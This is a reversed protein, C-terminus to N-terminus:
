CSCGKDYYSYVTVLVTYYHCSLSPPPRRQVKWFLVRFLKIEVFTPFFHRVKDNFKILNCWSIGTQGDVISMHSYRLWSYWRLCTQRLKVVLVSVSYGPAHKGQFDIIESFWGAAIRISDDFIWETTRHTMWYLCVFFCFVSGKM